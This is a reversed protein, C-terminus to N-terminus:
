GAEIQQLLTDLREHQYVIRELDSRSWKVLRIEGQDMEVMTAGDDYLACGTNFYCPLPTAARSSRAM